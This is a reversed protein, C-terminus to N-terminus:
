YKWEIIFSELGEKIGQYYDTNKFNPIMKKQLVDNCFSDSLIKQTGNGTNIRIQRLAASVVITLGDDKGKHGVGWNNSLDLAYQYFDEYPKISAVTLVAIQGKGTVIFDEIIATLMAEEAETFIDETDTIYGTPEPFVVTAANVITDNQSYVQPSFLILAFIFLLVAKRM